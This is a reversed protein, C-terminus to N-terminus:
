DKLVDAGREVYARVLHHAIASAPPTILGDKHERALMARAEDRTFWRGDEIENRDFNLERTTAEAFCGIMLSHPFPWPQAAFYKVKGIKLGSEEQTERRVADDISEGPEMFGALASYMGPVFRPSRALLCREGDIPLMIVCPDTRSFHETKCGPCSQRWGADTINTRTGCNPCFKNRAHWHHLAKAIAICELQGHPVLERTAISRLDTVLLDSRSKLPELKEAILSFGYRPAQEHLGLFIAVGSAGLEGAENMNFFANHGNGDKRLVIMEHAVIVARADASALFREMLAHDGRQESLRDLQTNVYALSPWPGTRESM